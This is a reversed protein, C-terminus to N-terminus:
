EVSIGLLEFAEAKNKPTKGTVEKTYSKLEFFKMSLPDPSTSSDEEEEVVTEEVIESSDEIIVDQVEEEEEEVREGNLVAQYLHDISPVGQKEYAREIDFRDAIIFDVTTKVQNFYKPHAYEVSVGSPVEEELRETRYVRVLKNKMFSM